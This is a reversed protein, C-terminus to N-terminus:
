GSQRQYSYLHDVLRFGERQYLRIATSRNREKPDDHDVYLLVEKAGVEGLLSLAQRLLKHGIGRNRYDEEVEIWRLLGLQDPGIGVEAKAIQKDQENITLEWAQPPSSMRQSKELDKVQAVKEVSGELPAGRMYLWLDEGEFGHKLLACHTAPRLSHPLGELGFSLATAYFFADITKEPHEEIIIDLLADIIKKDEKAHMWPITLSGDKRFGLAAVGVLREEQYAAFHELREIREWFSQDIPSQGQLAQLLSVETAAPQGPISDHNVLQCIQRRTELSIKAADQYTIIQLGSMAIAEKELFHEQNNRTNHGM